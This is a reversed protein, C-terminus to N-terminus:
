SSTSTNEIERELQISENLALVLHDYNYQAASINRVPTTACKKDIVANSPYRRKNSETQFRVVLHPAMNNPYEVIRQLCEKEYQILSRATLDDIDVSTVESQLSLKRTHYTIGLM